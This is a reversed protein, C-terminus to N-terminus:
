KMLFVGTELGSGLEYNFYVKEFPFKGARHLELMYETEPWGGVGDAGKGLWRGDPQEAVAWDHFIVLGGKKVRPVIHKFVWETTERDHNTDHFLFDIEDPYKDLNKTLDGILFPTQGCKELVHIRTEERLDDEIESALYTFPKDNAILASMIICTSGGHSTGLAVVNKPKFDRILAYMMASSTQEFRHEFHTPFEYKAPVWYKELLENIEETTMRPKIM